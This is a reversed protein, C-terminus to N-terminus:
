VEGKIVAELHDARNQILLVIIIFALFSNFPRDNIENVLLLIQGGIIAIWQLVYFITKLIM